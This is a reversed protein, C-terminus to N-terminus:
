SAVVKKRKAAIVAGGLGLVLLLGFSVTTSAEPVAAPANPTLLFAYQLGASNTAHGTIFGTDSISTADTLTFGSGPAILTNLDTIM